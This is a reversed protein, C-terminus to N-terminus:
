RTSASSASILDKFASSALWFARKVSIRLWSSAKCTLWCPLSQVMGKSAMSAIASATSPQSNIRRRLRVCVGVLGHSLEM